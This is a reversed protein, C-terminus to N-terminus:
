HKNIQAAFWVEAQRLIALEEDSMQLDTVSKPHTIRNRLEYAKRFSQWGQGGYEVPNPVRRSKFYVHFTFRLLKLFPQFNRNRIRVSGNDELEFEVEALLAREGDTLYRFAAITPGDQTYASVITRKAFLAGDVFAFFARLFSRRRFETDDARLQKSSEKVDAHLALVFQSYDGYVRDAFEQAERKMANLDWGLDSEPEDSNHM